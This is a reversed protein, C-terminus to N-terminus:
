KSQNQSNKQPVYEGNAVALDYARQWVPSLVIYGQDHYEFLSLTSEAIIEEDTMEQVTKMMMGGENTHLAM